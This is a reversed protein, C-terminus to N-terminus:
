KRRGFNMYQTSDYIVRERNIRKNVSAFLADVEITTVHLLKVTTKYVIATDQYVLLFVYIYFYSM